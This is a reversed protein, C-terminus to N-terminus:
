DSWWPPLQSEAERLVSLVTAKNLNCFTLTSSAEGQHSAAGSLLLLIIPLKLTEGHM